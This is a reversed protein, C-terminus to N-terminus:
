AASRPAQGAFWERLTLDATTWAFRRYGGSAPTAASTWSALAVFPRVTVLTEQM